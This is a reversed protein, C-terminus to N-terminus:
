YSALSSFEFGKTKKFRNLFDQPDNIEVTASGVEDDEDVDTSTIKAGSAMLDETYDDMDGYHECERFRIVRTIGELHVHFGEKISEVLTDHGKGKLEDLFSNFKEIKDM